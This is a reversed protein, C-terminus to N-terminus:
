GFTAEYVKFQSIHLNVRDILYDRTLIFHEGNRKSIRVKYEKEMCLKIAEEESLGVLSALFDNRGHLEDNSM